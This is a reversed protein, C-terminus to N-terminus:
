IAPVIDRTTSKIPTSRLKDTWRALEFNSDARYLSWNFKPSSLMAQKIRERTEESDAGLSGIGPIEGLAWGPNSWRHRTSFDNDAIGAQSLVFSALEETMAALVMMRAQNLRTKAIGIGYIGRWNTYMRRDLCLDLFDPGATFTKPWGLRLRRCELPDSGPNGTPTLNLMAPHDHVECRLKRGNVILPHRQGDEDTWDLKFAPLIVRLFLDPDDPECRFM